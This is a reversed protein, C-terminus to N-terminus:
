AFVCVIPWFQCFGATNALAPSPLDSKEASRDCGEPGGYGEAVVTCKRAFVGVPEGEDNLEIVVFQQAIGFFVIM